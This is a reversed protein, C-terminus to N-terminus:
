LVTNIPYGLNSTGVRTVCSRTGDSNTVLTGTCTNVYNTMPYTNSTTFIPQGTPSVGTQTVYTTIGTNQNYVQKAM